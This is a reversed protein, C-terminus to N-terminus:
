GLVLAGLKLGEGKEFLEKCGLKSWNPGLKQFFILLDGGWSVGLIYCVHHHTLVWRVETFVKFVELRVM